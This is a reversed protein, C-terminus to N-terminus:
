RKRKRRAPARLEVLKYTRVLTRELIRMIKRLNSWDKLFEVKQPFEDQREFPPIRPNSENEWWYRYAAQWKELFPRLVKAMVNNILLGLHNKGVTELRGVPFRRMIHRAEQFFLFVSKLSDAFVEGTFDVCRTDGQKGTLAVRTSLETYLEWACQRDLESLEGGLKVLGLDVTFSGKTLVAM